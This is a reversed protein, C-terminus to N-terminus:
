FVNVTPKIFKQAIRYKRSKKSPDAIEIFRENAWEQCLLRATRGSINLLSQVDHSTFLSGDSYLSLIVRQRGDLAHLEQSADIEKNKLANFAHKRIRTFSKHLTCCFYTIWATIDAEARGFYYNHSPGISLAHYYDQINKAYCEELSFIGKLDYSGQHLILTTLLRATRGNGDYYPHITAFQYHAIAAILPPPFDSAQMTTIWTILEHMLKPVDRAEPPLYVIKRTSSDRIVNQGDRYATPKVTKKGNGMVLAHLKKIFAETIRKRSAIMNEIAIQAQYYGEIERVDRERGPIQKGDKIVEIVEQQTLRNGEIQTSYHASSLRATERLSYLVKPTLPLDIFETKIHQIKLLYDLIESTLTYVPKLM